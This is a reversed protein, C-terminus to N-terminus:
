FHLGCPLVEEVYHTWVVEVIHVVFLLGPYSWCVIWFQLFLSSSKNVNAFAMMCTSAHAYIRMNNYIMQQYVFQSTIQHILAGHKLAMFDLLVTRCTDFFQVCHKFKKCTALNLLNAGNKSVLEVEECTSTQKPVNWPTEAIQTSECFLQCHLM